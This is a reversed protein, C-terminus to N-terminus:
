FIGVPSLAKLWEQESSRPHIDVLARTSLWQIAHDVACATNEAITQKSLDTRKELTALLWWYHGFVVM